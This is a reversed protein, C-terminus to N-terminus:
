REYALTVKGDMGLFLRLNGKRYIKCGEAFSGSYAFGEQTVEKETMGKYDKMNEGGLKQASMQSM